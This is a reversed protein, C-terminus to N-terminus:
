GKLLIIELLTGLLTAFVNQTRKSLKQGNKYQLISRVSIRYNTGPRKLLHFHQEFCTSLCLTRTLDIKIFLIM